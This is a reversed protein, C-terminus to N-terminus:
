KEIHASPVDMVIGDRCRPCEFEDYWREDEPTDTNNLTYLYVLSTGCTACVKPAYYPEDNPRRDAASKPRKPGIRAM